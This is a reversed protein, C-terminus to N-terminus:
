ISDGSYKKRSAIYLEERFAPTLNSSAYYNYFSPKEPNCFKDAYERAYRRQEDEPLEAFNEPLGQPFVAILLKDGYLEYIKQSDNMLQPAWADWGAAIMNPVQQIINGCSHLECKKGKSHLYDTVRKMYPVIMEEAVTPSFFPAKQSGWDDHIFFADINPFAKLCHDFINIYLDTLKDFAAHVFPQSDEDYIAVVANEFEMWSILREFWGTQFWMQNYTEARLYGENKKAAGEWDWSDIDPFKIVSEWDEIDELMPKGPRVMSGGVQAIYEWEVGFMDPALAHDEAQYFGGGEFVFARAINDPIVGPAFMQADVAQMMQWWPERNFTKVGHDHANLPNNLIKQGPGGGFGPMEFKVELESPDFKPVNSM